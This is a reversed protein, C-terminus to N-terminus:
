RLIREERTGRAWLAVAAGLGVNAPVFLALIQGNVQHFAPLVKLALGLLSLAGVIFALARAARLARPRDRLATPLLIGLVLAFLTAQLVNENRAAISHDTFGWLGILVAGLVGTVVAWITGGTRLWGRAVASRRGAAGGWWFTAGLTVGVLLYGPWWAPPADPVPYADSEFLVQETRVLPVMTGASDPVRIDRLYERLKLPLFMEDWRTVARDAGPGVALLLGTYLPINHSNLRQTHFRFTASAPGGTQARLAGGLARDLADRVRTSCNDRYYDYRYFRNEPLANAQLFRSLALRQAPLLNLEQRWVSRRAAVYRPLDTQTPYAGMWYNMRGQVFRLLFNEQRFSFMGYNYATSTGRSRDEVIIANHGFREWVQGGVGMTMISITLSSGPSPEATRRGPPEASPITSQRVPPHASPV